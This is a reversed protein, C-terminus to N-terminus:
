FDQDSVDDEGQIDQLLVDLDIDDVDDAAGSDHLGTEDIESIQQDLTLSPIDEEEFSQEVVEAEPTSVDTEQVSPIFRKALQDSMNRASLREDRMLSWLILGLTRGPELFEVALNSRLESVKMSRIKDRQPLSEDDLKGSLEVGLDSEELIENVAAQYLNMGVPPKPFMETLGASTFCHELIVQLTRTEM